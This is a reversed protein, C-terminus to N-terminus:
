KWLSPDLSNYGKIVKEADEWTKFVFFYIIVEGLAQEWPDAKYDKVPAGWEQQSPKGPVPAGPEIAKGPVVYTNNDANALFRANKLDFGAAIANQPAEIKEVPPLANSEIKMGNALTVSTIRRTKFKVKQYLIDMGPRIDTIKSTPQIAIAKKDDQYRRIFTQEYKNTGNRFNLLLENVIPTGSDSGIQFSFGAAGWSSITFEVQSGACCVCVHDYAGVVNKSTPIVDTLMLPQFAKLRQNEARADPDSNNLRCSVGVHRNFWMPTNFGVLDPKKRAFNNTIIIQGEPGLLEEYPMFRETSIPILVDDLTMRETGLKRVLFRYGIDANENDDPMFNNKARLAARVDSLRTGAKLSIEVIDNEGTGKYCKVITGTDVM